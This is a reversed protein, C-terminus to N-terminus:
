RLPPHSQSSSNDGWCIIIGEKNVGCSHRSGSDVDLFREDEPPSAQGYDNRGWCLVSDDTQLGCVHQPGATLFKFRGNEPPSAQGLEDSGWCDATDDERLGCAFDVGVAISKFRKDKLLDGESWTLGGAWCVVYGDSRLGCFISEGSGNGGFGNGSIQIFREHEPLGPDSHERFFRCKFTGDEYLECYSFEDYGPNWTSAGLSIAGRFETPELTYLDVWADDILGYAFTAFLDSSIIDIFPGEAAQVLDGLCVVAGDARIGCTHGKGASVSVFPPIPTSTPTPTKTPIPTFTATPAYTPTPTLTNTPTSTITPTPTQTPTPTITPTPTQTPTPTITPTLTITPTPTHSISKAVQIGQLATLRDELEIVSVAFGISDVPRGGAATEIKSTNVGIVEGDMNVLPGGSNGPNIAADTQFFNIGAVERTSSIIGRTVTLNSGIRDVLPFGLALVEDGVRTKAPDGVVIGEFRDKSDIQVLALDASTNTELVDGSYRRGGNLWITVTRAGGLVHENTVVIGDASIIFGTGNGSVTEIQVVSSQIREVLDALSLRGEDSLDEGGVFQITIAQSSNPSDTKTSEANSSESDPRTGQTESCASTVILLMAM